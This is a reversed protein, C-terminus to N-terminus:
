FRRQPYYNYQRDNNNDGLLKVYLFISVVIVALIIFISVIINGGKMKKPTKKEYYDSAEYFVKISDEDDSIEIFGKSTQLANITYVATGDEASDLTIRLMGDKDNIAVNGNVRFLELKADKGPKMKLSGPRAVLGAKFPLQQATSVSKGSQERATLKLTIFQPPNSLTSLVPSVACYYKGGRIELKAQAWHSEEVSCKGIINM